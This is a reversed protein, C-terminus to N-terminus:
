SCVRQFVNLNKMNTAMERGTSFLVWLYSIEIQSTRTAFWSAVLCQSARAMDTVYARM